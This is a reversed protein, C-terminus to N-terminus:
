PNSKDVWVDCDFDLSDLISMLRIAAQRSDLVVDDIEALYRSGASDAPLTTLGTVRLKGLESEAFTLADRDPPSHPSQSVLDAIRLIDGQKPLSALSADYATKGFASGDLLFISFDLHVNM